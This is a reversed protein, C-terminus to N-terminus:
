AILVIKSKLNHLSSMNDKICQWCFTSPLIIVDRETSVAVSFTALRAQWDGCARIISLRTEPPELLEAWNDVCSVAETVETSSEVHQKCIGVLRRYGYRKFSNQVDLDAVWKGGEHASLLTELLYLEDDKLGSFDDTLPVEASTFSLHLSTTRFNNQLYGEFPRHVIDRFSHIDRPRRMPDVPPVLFAIGSRGINGPIVRIQSQEDLLYESSPDNLLCSAVWILDNSCMAMVNTLNKPPIQFRGSDFFCICSFVKSLDTPNPPLLNVSASYREKLVNPEMHDVPEWNKEKKMDPIWPSKWIEHELVRVDITAIKLSRYLSAAYSIAELSQRYQPTESTSSLERALVKYLEIPAWLSSNFFAHFHKFSYDEATAQITVDDSDAFLAALDDGFWRIGRTLQGNMPPMNRGSSEWKKSGSTRKSREEFNRQLIERTRPHQESDSTKIFASCRSLITDPEDPIEAPATVNPPENLMPFQKVLKRFYRTDKTHAQTEVPSLIWRQHVPAPRHTGDAQRKSSPRAIPKATAYEYVHTIGSSESTDRRFRIFMQSPRGPLKTATERLIKVRDEESKTCSIFRGRESLGFYPRIPTQGLFSKAYRRGLRLIQKFSEDGNALAQLCIESADFLVALWRIKRLIMRMKASGASAQGVKHLWRIMDFTEMGTDGWGHLYAGLFAQLFEDWTLRQTSNLTRERNVPPGYHRLQALPLSWCIGGQEERMKHLGVTLTGCSSLLPDKLSITKPYPEVIMLDPYIHWASLALLIDGSKAKQSVGDLLAEFVTLSDLWATIVSQFTEQASNVRNCINDLILMLQKQKNAKVRDAAYLWARASADWEALQQRSLTNKAAAADRLDVMGGEALDNLISESRQKVIETWISIAESPDWMRALMCALLHVAIAGPGSTAGAWITTADAGVRSSFFGYQKNQSPNIKPSQSIESARLGYVSFLKPTKPTLSVFLAGLIRATVHSQGEEANTRRISSLAKGVGQFEVPSEVQHLAFNFNLHVLSPAVEAINTVGSAITKGLSAM